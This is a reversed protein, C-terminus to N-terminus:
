PSPKRLFHLCVSIAEFVNLFLMKIWFGLKGKMITSYCCRSDAFILFIQKLQKLSLGKFIIKKLFIKKMKFARKRLINLNKDQNKTGICLPKILNIEFNISNCCPFCVIVIYMNDMCLQFQERKNFHRPLPPPPPLPYPGEM